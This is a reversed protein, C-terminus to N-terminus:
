RFTLYLRTYFINEMLKVQSGPLKYRKTPKVLWIGNSFFLHKKPAANKLKSLPRVATLAGMKGWQSVSGPSLRAMREMVEDYVEKDFLNKM